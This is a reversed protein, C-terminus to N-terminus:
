FLRRNREEWLTYIQACWALKMITTLLSKGKCAGSAWAIEAECCLSNIRLGSLNLVTEWIASALTCELLLHDMTELADNCNACKVGIELGMCQLRDKTPLRDLFVMWAIVSHKPIHLPFWILNQWLVKVGKVRIEEWLEGVKMAGASLVSFAETM